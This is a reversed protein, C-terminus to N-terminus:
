YHLVQDIKGKKNHLIRSIYPMHCVNPRVYLQLLIECSTWKRIANAGFSFTLNPHSYNSRFSVSLVDNPFFKSCFICRKPLIKFLLYMTQSSSQVSSVDNPFFKLCFICRRPFVKLLLYMTQSSSQVSSVDNPFFKSCFICQKPLVNFLFICRKPLVKFLFICRKPLVKFLLYMTQSSSQVSSVGNPFFKLCFICRRPLVKLLLYM